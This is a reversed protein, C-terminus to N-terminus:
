DRRGGDSVRPRGHVAPQPLKGLYEKLTIGLRALGIILADLGLTRAAEAQADALSTLRTCLRFLHGHRGAHGASTLAPNRRLRM